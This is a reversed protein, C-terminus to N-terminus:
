AAARAFAVFYEDKLMSAAFAFVAAIDAAALSPYAALLDENSWGDALRDLILEVSIRTGKIVPKGVLVAPDAVIRTKWDIM